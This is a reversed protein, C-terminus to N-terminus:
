NMLICSVLSGARLLSCHETRPPLVVLGDASAMSLLRSSLQVGTGTAIWHAEGSNM